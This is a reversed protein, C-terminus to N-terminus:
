APQPVEVRLALLQAQGGRQVLQKREQALLDGHFPVRFLSFRSLGEGPEFSVIEILCRAIKRIKVAVYYM